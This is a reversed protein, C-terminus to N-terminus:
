LEPGGGQDIRRKLDRVSELPYRRHGSPLKRVGHIHGADAYRRVTTAAVGLLEAAEKTTLGDGDTDSNGNETSESSMPSVTTDISKPRM